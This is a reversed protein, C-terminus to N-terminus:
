SGRWSLIASRKWGDNAFCLLEFKVEMHRAWSGCKESSDFWKLLHYQAPCGEFEWVRSTRLLIGLDIVRVFSGGVVAMVPAVVAVWDVGRPSWVPM